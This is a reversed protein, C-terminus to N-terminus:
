FDGFNDSIIKYLMLKLMTGWFFGNEFILPPLHGRGGIVDRSAIVCIDSVDNQPCHRCFERIKLLNSKLPFYKVNICFNIFPTVNQGGGGARRQNQFVQM